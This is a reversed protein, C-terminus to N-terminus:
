KENVGPGDHHFSMEEIAHAEKYILLFLYVIGSTQLVDV